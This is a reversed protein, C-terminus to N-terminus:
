GPAGTGAVALALATALPVALNDDVGSPAVEAAAAVAAVPVAALGAFPALVAAAALFFVGAGEWTGSGLPRKGWLRGAVSAAPDALALVLVAPVFVHAPAWLSLILASAVYWTSSAVRGAERPSALAAAWRFFAANAAPSALRVADVVVAAALLAAFTWRAAPSHPGVTWAFGAAALGGAAHFVRRWPQIGRTRGVLADFEM